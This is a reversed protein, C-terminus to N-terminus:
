YQNVWKILAFSRARLQTSRKHQRPTWTFFAGSIDASLV